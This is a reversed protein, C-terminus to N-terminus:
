LLQPFFLGERFESTIGLLDKFVVNRRKTIAKLIFGIMLGALVLVFIVAMIIQFLFGLIGMGIGSLRIDQIMTLLGLAGAISFLLINNSYYHTCDIGALSFALILVFVGTWISYGFRQKYYSSISKIISAFIAIVAIAVAMFLLVEVIKM